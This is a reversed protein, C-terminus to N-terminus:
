QAPRQTAPHAIDEKRYTMYVDARGYHTPADAPRPTHRFGCQSTRSFLLLLLLSCLSCVRLQSVLVLARLCAEHMRQATSRRCSVQEYLRLAHVLKYNSELYLKHATGAAVVEDYLPLLKRLIKRGIGKGQLGTLVACKSLEYVGGGESLLAATGVIRGGASAPARALLLVGGADLIVSEPNSLIHEDQLTLM